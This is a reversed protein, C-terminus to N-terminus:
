PFARLLYMGRPFQLYAFSLLAAFLRAWTQRKKIGAASFLSVIGVAFTCLGPLWWGRETKINAKDPDIAMYLFVTVGIATVTVGWGFCGKYASQILPPMEQQALYELAPHIAAAKSKMMAPITFDTQCTPCSVVMGAM